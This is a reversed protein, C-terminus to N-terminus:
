VIPLVFDGRRLMLPTRKGPQVSFLALDIQKLITGYQCNHWPLKVSRGVLSFLQTKVHASTTM